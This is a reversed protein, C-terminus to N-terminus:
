LLIVPVNSTGDFIDLSPVYVEDYENVLFQLQIILTWLIIFFRWEIASICYSYDLLHYIM